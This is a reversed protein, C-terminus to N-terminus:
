KGGPTWWDFVGHGGNRSVRALFGKNVDLLYIGTTALFSVYKGDRSWAPWPSDAGFNTLQRAGTGDPKIIWLDWPLGDALAPQALACLLAPQCEEGPLLNLGQVPHRPPGSAAFLLSQGDPSFRPAALMLFSQEDLLLRANKGEGDAAWLSYTFHDISFRIFASQKGDASVGAQLADDIFTSPSGGAPAIRDIESHKHDVSEVTYYVFKGDRSFFPWDVNSRADPANVLTHQGKGDTGILQLSIAAPGQASLAQQVYVVQAGDPSFAPSQSFIDKSAPVLARPRATPDDQIWISGDGPAFVFKGTVGSPILAPGSSPMPTLPSAPIMTPTPGAPTAVPAPTPTPAASCALLVLGLVFLFSILYIRNKM